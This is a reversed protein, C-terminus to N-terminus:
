RCLFLALAQPTSTSGLNEPSAERQEEWIPLHLFKRSGPHHRTVAPPDAMLLKVLATGGEAKSRRIQALKRPPKKTYKPRKAVKFREYRPMTNVYRQTWQIVWPLSDVPCRNQPYRIKYGHCSLHSLNSRPWFTQELGRVASVPILCAKSLKISGYCDLRSNFIYGTLWTSNLAQLCFSNIM